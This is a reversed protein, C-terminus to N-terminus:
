GRLGGASIIMRALERADGAGADKLADYVVALRDAPKADKALAAYKNWSPLNGDLWKSYANGVTTPESPAVAELIKEAPSEPKAVYRMACRCGYGIPPIPALPDDIRWVTGHLARHSDRVKDDPTGEPDHGGDTTTCVYQFYVSDSDLPGGAEAAALQDLRLDSLDLSFDLKITM